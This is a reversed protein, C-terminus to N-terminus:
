GMAKLQETIWAAAEGEDQYRLILAQAPHLEVLGLLFRSVRRDSEAIVFVRKGARLAIAVEAGVGLSPEGVYAVLVDAATVHDLDREAVELNSLHADKVPDAHLHPVYAEWGAATCAAALREYRTRSIDISAANLLAGSIYAHM